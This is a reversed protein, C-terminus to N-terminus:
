SELGRIDLVDSIDRGVEGGDCLQVGVVVFRLRAVRVSVWRLMM